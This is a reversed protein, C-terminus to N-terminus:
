LSSSTWRGGCDCLGGKAGVYHATSAVSAGFGVWKM